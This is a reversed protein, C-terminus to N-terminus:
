AATTDILPLLQDHRAFAILPGSGDNFIGFEGFYGTLLTTLEAKTCISPVDVFAAAAGNNIEASNAYIARLRLIEEELNKLAVAANQCRHFYTLNKDATWSM